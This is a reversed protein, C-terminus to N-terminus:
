KCVGMPAGNPGTTSRCPRYPRYQPQKWFAEENQRRVWAWQLVAKDQRWRKEFYDIYNNLSMSDKYKATCATKEGGYEKCWKRAIDLIELNRDILDMRQKENKQKLSYDTMKIDYRDRGLKLHGEGSFGLQTVDGQTVHFHPKDESGKPLFVDRRAFAAGVLTLKFINKVIKM